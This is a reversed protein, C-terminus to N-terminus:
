FNSSSSSILVLRRSRIPTIVISLSINTAKVIHFCLNKKRSLYEDMTVKFSEDPAVETGAPKTAPIALRTNTSTTTTSPQHHHFKSIDKSVSKQQILEKIDPKKM